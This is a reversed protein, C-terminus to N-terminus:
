TPNRAADIRFRTHGTYPRVNKDVAKSQPSSPSAAGESGECCIGRERYCAHKSAPQAAVFTDDQYTQPRESPLLYWTDVPIVYIAFDIDDSTYCKQGFRVM